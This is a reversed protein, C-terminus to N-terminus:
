PTARSTRFALVGGRPHHATSSLSGAVRRAGLDSRRVRVRIGRDDRLEVEPHQARRSMCPYAYVELEQQSWAGPSPYGGSGLLRVSIGKACLAVVRM